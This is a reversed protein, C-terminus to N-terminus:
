PDLLGHRAAFAAAETRNAADTKALINRVHNAVTNASRFLAKAIDQNTRGEAVMRLVQVERATLGAPYGQREAAGAPQRLALVRQELASMGLERAAALAADLLPAAHQADGPRKRELLMAAYEHRSHALWPRGGSAQDFALAREFHTEARDWQEMTLALMGLVRDVCGFSAVNAGFVIGSGGHPELLAYLRAARAADGLWACAEALYVLSGLRAGDEVNALAFDRAALREFAAQAQEQRGLECCLVIYGPLWTAAEAVTSQFQDLVPALEALRGQERRLTFLQMAAAGTTQSFQIAHRLSQQALQEAEDFRGTHLAIMARYNILAARVWHHHHVVNTDAGLGAIRTAEAIDGAEILDGVLWGTLHGITWEPRDLREGLALAERGAALRLPRLEPNWRAPMIASLAFFLAPLDGLRRAMSVAQEHVAVAADIRDCYVLARCLAALLRARQVGDVAPTAALAERTLAAAVVGTAGSSRWSATEYGLAAHALADADALRRALQAADTFTVLATVNESAETQVEGLALLLTCRQADHGPELAQLACQYLRAAEEHALAASAQQAARVAYEVAQAASGCGRGAHFHHALTSSWAADDGHRAQLTLAIRQHLRVRRPAPMEDYLADRILAHTFQWAGPSALEEVLSARRAEDLALACEDETAEEMLAHLLEFDFQRGIVAANGLAHNCLPSLRNLRSGIVERVGAPVRQLDALACGRTEQLLRALETLFLPHGDTRQHLAAALEPVPRRAVAQVFQTTEQPSFGTLRLRLTGSQRALVGLTDQLPHSRTVEADRYSGVILLASTASERVVFELLKLSPVDACHLDDLLLLLPRRAAVRQWFGTVADFLQFRAQAADAPPTLPQHAPLRPALSPDLSALHAAACAAMAQVARADHAAVFGRLLQLWPWYPPAGPEEPCHACLVLMDAAAAKAAVAQALRTKGIGPPGALMVSRGQGARAFALARDLAALEQVRGIFPREETPPAGDHHAANM